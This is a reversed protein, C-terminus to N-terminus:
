LLIQRIREYSVGFMDGLKRLSYGKLRAEKIENIKKRLVDKGLHTEAHCVRCLSMLNKCDNNATEWDGLYQSNDKHHVCLKVDSRGCKVCQFNDRKFVYDCVMKKTIGSRGHELLYCKRSCYANEGVVWSEYRIFKKHCASCEYEKKTM